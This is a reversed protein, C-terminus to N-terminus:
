LTFGSTTVPYPYQAATGWKGWVPVVYPIEGGNPGNM